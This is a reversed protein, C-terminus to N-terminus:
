LERSKYFRISLVWSISYVMCVVASVILSMLFGFDQLYWILNSLYLESLGIVASFVGSVSLAIAYSIRGRNIGLRYLFPLSFTSPILAFIFFSSFYLLNEMDWTKIFAMCILRTILIILGSVGVICLNLIYKSSVIQARTYPLAAAYQEWKEKEEYAMLSVILRSAFIVVYFTFFLKNMIGSLISFAAIVWLNFSCYSKMVYCDKLLLGKM